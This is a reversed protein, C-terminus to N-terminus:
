SVFIIESYVKEGNNLIVQNFPEETKHLREESYRLFSDVKKHIQEFDMKLYNNEDNNYGNKHKCVIFLRNGYHCRRGQSQYDYLHRILDNRYERDNKYQNRQKKFRKPFSTVKLDFPTDMLYFDITKHTTKKEKESINYSCFINEAMISTKKNYWRRVLYDFDGKPNKNYQYLLDDFTEANYVMHDTLKDNKNDQIKWQKKIYPVAKKLDDSVHHYLLIQKQEVPKTKFKEYSNSIKFNINDM